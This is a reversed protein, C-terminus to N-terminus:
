ARGLADLFAKTADAPRPAGYIAGIVAVGAAGAALVDTVREPTLGGVALVPRDVARTVAELAALGQPPGYRRKSATDYVPGFVIFDAGEAAAGRAEAESHVSAGVLFGAPTIGRLAAVPLSSHTRQVGDASAALAVDARDNVILRARHRQTAERLTDALTLLERPELDKERLQVARLGAALCEEVVDAPPRPAAARDTILYLSFGLQDM